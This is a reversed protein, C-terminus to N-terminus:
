KYVQSSGKSILHQIILKDGQASQESEEMEFVLAIKQNELQFQDELLM